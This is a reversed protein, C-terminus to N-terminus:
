IQVEEGSQESEITDEPRVYRTGHWQFLLSEQHKLLDGMATLTYAWTSMSFLTYYVWFDWSAPNTPHLDGFGITTITSFGFYVADLYSWDPELYSFCVAGILWNAIFALIVAGGVFRDTMAQISEEEKLAQKPNRKLTSAQPQAGRASELHGEQQEEDHQLASVYALALAPDQFITDRRWRIELGSEPGLSATRDLAIVPLSLRKTGDGRHGSTPPSRTIRFSVTPQQTLHSMSVASRRHPAGSTMLPASRASTSVKSPSQSDGHSRSVSQRDGDRMDSDSIVPTADEIFSELYSPVDPPIDMPSPSSSVNRTIMNLSPESPSLVPLGKPSTGMLSKDPQASLLSSTIQAESRETQYVSGIMKSHTLLELKFPEKTM